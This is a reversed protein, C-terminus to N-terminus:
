QGREVTFPLHTFLVMFKCQNSRPELTTLLETCSQVAVLRSGSNPMLMPLVRDRRVAYRATLLNCSNL